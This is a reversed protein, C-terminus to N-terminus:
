GLTLNLYPNQLSILQKKGQPLWIMGGANELFVKSAMGSQMMANAVKRLEAMELTTEIIRCAGDEMRYLLLEERAHETEETNESVWEETNEAPVLKRAKGNCFNNEYIAYAIAKEDWCVYGDKGYYADRIQKYEAPTIEKFCWGALVSEYDDKGSVETNDVVDMTKEFAINEKEFNRNEKEFAIGKKEFDISEKEFFSEFGLKEYYAELSAEAPQLVLPRNYKKKAYELIQAAYGKKQYKPLTAVAYVYLVPVREEGVMLEAPFFSAMSVPKGDEHIVLMNETEFRHNLYFQIYEEEDGFCAQWIEQIAPFDFVNAFVVQSQYARYKRLM